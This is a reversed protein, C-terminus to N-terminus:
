RRLTAILRRPNLMLNIAGDIEKCVLTSNLLAEKSCGEDGIIAISISSAKLMLADNNGNGFSITDGDKFSKIFSEKEKTHDTSHLIKIDLNFDKLEKQVSGFTDATIVYVRFNECLKKLLKKTSDKLKGDKALTGNYDFIVDKIDVKKFGPIEVIM